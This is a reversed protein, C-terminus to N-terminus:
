PRLTVCYMNLKSYEQEINSITDFGNIKNFNNKEIIQFNTKEVIENVDVLYEINYSGITKIYVGITSNKNDVIVFDRKGIVIEKGFLGVNINTTFKEEILEKDLTTFIFYGGKKLHNKIIDYFYPSKVFYHIAFHCVIVDAKLDNPIEKTLEKNIDTKIFKITLNEEGSEKLRKKGENLADKDNDLLFVKSIGIHIWKYLDNAHGGGIDIITDDKKCYKKYLIKKVTNHFLKIPTEDISINSVWYGYKNQIKEYSEPTIEKCKSFDKLEVPYQITRWTSIATKYANPKTKDTRIKMFEWKNNWYFECINNNCNIDDIKETYYSPINDDYYFLMMNNEILKVEKKNKKFENSINEIVSKKPKGTYLYINGNKEICYFDISLKQKPKWKYIISDYYPLEPTYILGDIMYKNKDSTYTKVSECINWNFEKVFLNDNGCELVIDDLYKLRLSLVDDSIDISNCIIIDYLYINYGIMEGFMLNFSECCTEYKNIINNNADVIYLNDDDTFIMVNIGDAKDTVSYKIDFLNFIYNRELTVPRNIITEYNIDNINNYKDSTYKKINKYLMLTDEPIKIFQKENIKNLEITALEILKDISHKKDPIKDEIELEYYSNYKEFLEDPNKDFLKAIFEINTANKPTEYIEGFEYSISSNNERYIYRKRFKIMDFVFFSINITNEDEISILLKWPLKNGYLIKTPYKNIFKSSKGSASKILVKKIHSKSDNLYYTASYEINDTKRFLKEFQEKSLHNTFQGNKKFNGIHIEIEEM